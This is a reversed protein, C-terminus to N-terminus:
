ILSQKTVLRIVPRIVRKKTSIEVAESGLMYWNNKKALKKTETTLKIM